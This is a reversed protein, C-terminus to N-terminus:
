LHKLLYKKLYAFQSSEEFEAYYVWFTAMPVWQGSLWYYPSIAIVPDHRKPYFWVFYGIILPASFNENITSDKTSYPDYPDIQVAMTGKIRTLEIKVSDNNVPYDLRADYMSLKNKMVYDYLKENISNLSDRSLSDILILKIQINGVIDSHMKKSISNLSDQPLSSIPLEIVEQAQLSLSLFSLLVFLM